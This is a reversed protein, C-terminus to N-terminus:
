WEREERGCLWEYEAIAGIWLKYMMGNLGKPVSPGVM